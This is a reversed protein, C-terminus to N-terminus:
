EVPGLTVMFRGSIPVPESLDIDNGWNESTGFAGSLTGSVTLLEGEVSAEDIAVALGGAEDESYLEQREGDVIRTLSAEPDGPASIPGSFGLTFTKFRAWTEEDTPRSYINVSSFAGGDMWDSQSEWLPFVFDEGGITLVVEGGEEAVAPSALALSCAVLASRMGFRISLDDM